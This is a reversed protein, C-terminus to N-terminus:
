RSPGRTGQAFFPRAPREPVFFPSAPRERTFFPWGPREQAYANYGPRSHSHRWAGDTNQRIRATKRRPKARTMSEQALRDNTAQPEPASLGSAEVPAHQAGTAHTTPQRGELVPTTQATVGVHQGVRSKIIPKPLNAEGRASARRAVEAKNPELLVDVVLLLATLLVGITVFYKLLPMTHQGGYACEYAAIRIWSPRWPNIVPRSTAPV